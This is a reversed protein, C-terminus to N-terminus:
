VLQTVPSNVLLRRMFDFCTGKYRVLQKRIGLTYADDKIMNGSPSVWQFGM